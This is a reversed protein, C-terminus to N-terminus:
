QSVTKQGCGKGLEASFSLSPKCVQTSVKNKRLLFLPLHAFFFFFFLYILMKIESEELLPFHVKYKASHIDESPIVWSM